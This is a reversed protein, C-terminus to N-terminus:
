INPWQFYIVSCSNTQNTRHSSKTRHLHHRKPRSQLCESAVFTTKYSFYTSLFFVSLHPSSSEFARLVFVYAFGGRICMRIREYASQSLIAYPQLHTLVGDSDDSRCRSKPFKDCMKPVLKSKLYSHCFTERPRHM